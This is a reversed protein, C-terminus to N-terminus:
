KNYGTKELNNLIKKLQEENEIKIDKSFDNSSITNHRLFYDKQNYNSYIEINVCNSLDILIDVNFYNDKEACIEYYEVEGNKIFDTVVYLLDILEM